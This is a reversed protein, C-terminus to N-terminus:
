DGLRGRTANSIVRAEDFGRLGPQLLDGKFSSKLSAALDQVARKM